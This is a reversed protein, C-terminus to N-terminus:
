RDLKIWQESANVLAPVPLRRRPQKFTCAGRGNKDSKEITVMTGFHQEGSAGPVQPAMPALHTERAAALVVAFSRNLGRKTLCVLLDEQVGRM